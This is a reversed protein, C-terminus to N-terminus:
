KERKLTPHSIRSKKFMLKLVIEKVLWVALSQQNNVINRIIRNYIEGGRLRQKKSQSLSTVHLCRIKCRARTFDVARTVVM